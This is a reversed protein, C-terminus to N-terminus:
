RLRALVKDIHDCAALMGGYWIALPYAPDNSIEFENAEKLPAVSNPFTHELWTMTHKKTRLLNLLKSVTQHGGAQNGGNATIAKNDAWDIVAAPRRRADRFHEFAFNLHIDSFGYGLFLAADCGQALRDVEAFYTRFPRRLIQTTKGYGAIISSTPFEPGEVSYFGGRGEANQSFQANLDDVWHIEHLGRFGTFGGNDDRMDFHVSGHLHLLCSWNARQFIRDDVFRGESDFGMELRPAARYVLDDYNLTVISLEFEQSLATFFTRLKALETPKESASARCRDRFSKLLTDVLFRGFLPLTNPGISERSFDDLNIEPLPKASVFAGLASTFQGAPFAAALAFVAYLVDEFTPKKQFNQIKAQWDESIKTEFYKYLNTSGGERVPYLEEAQTSLINAVDGVSPMGFDISAGAGVVILLKRKLKAAERQRLRGKSSAFTTPVTYRTTM